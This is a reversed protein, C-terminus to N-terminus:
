DRMLRLHSLHWALCDTHSGRSPARTQGRRDNGGASSRAALCRDRDARVSRCLAGLTSMLYRFAITPAAVSGGHQILYSANLVVAGMLALSLGILLNSM